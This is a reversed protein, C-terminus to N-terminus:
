LYKTSLSIMTFICQFCKKENNEFDNVLIDNEVLINVLIYYMKFLLIKSCHLDNEDWIYQVFNYVCCKQKKGGDKM